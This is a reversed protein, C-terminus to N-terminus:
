KPKPKQTLMLDTLINHRIKRHHNFYKLKEFIRGCEECKHARPPEGEHSSQHRRLSSESIFKLGCFTCPFYRKEVSHQFRKHNTLSSRSIYKKQCLECQYKDDRESKPIHRRQHEELESKTRYKKECLECDFPRIETHSFMHRRLDSIRTAFSGCIECQFPSFPRLKGPHQLKHHRIIKEFTTFIEPCYACNYTSSTKMGGWRCEHKRKYIRNCFPCQKEELEPIKRTKYPVSKQRTSFHRKMHLVLSSKKPWMRHCLNCEFIKPSETCTREMKGSKGDATMLLDDIKKNSSEESDGVSVFTSSYKSHVEGEDTTLIDVFTKKVSRHAADKLTINIRRTILILQNKIFSFDNTNELCRDCTPVCNEHKILDSHIQKIRKQVSEIFNCRHLLNERIEM